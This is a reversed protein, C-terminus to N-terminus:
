TVLEDRLSQVRVLAHRACFNHKQALQLLAGGVAAEAVAASCSGPGSFCLSGRNLAVSFNNLEM